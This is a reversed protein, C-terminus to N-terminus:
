RRVHEEQPKQTAPQRHQSQQRQQRQQPQSQQPQQRTVQPENNQPQQTNTQQRNNGPEQIHQPQPRSAQQQNNVTQPQSRQGGSASGNNQRQMEQRFQPQSSGENRSIEQPRGVPQSARFSNSPRATQRTDSNISPRYVQVINGTVNTQRPSGANSVSYVQVPHHTENEIVERRPGYYYTSHFSHDVYTENMYQTERIYRRAHRPDYYGYVNQQYLYEPGVFVWYNDPYNYVGGPAYGPGMPAWGYYGGGSRWSVWAPAWEHGPLWVWGYYSNYTWRGYHYTAWGYPADSVWMNGYETM